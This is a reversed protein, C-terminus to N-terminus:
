RNIPEIKYEIDYADDDCISWFTEILRKAVIESGSRDAGILIVYLSHGSKCSIDGKRLSRQVVALFDNVIEPEIKSDFRTTFNFTVLSADKDLREIIRQIFEYLKKFDSENVTFSGFGNTDVSLEEIFSLDEPHGEGTLLEIKKDILDGFMPLVFVDDVGALTLKEQKQFSSDFTAACVPVGSCKLATITETVNEGLFEDSVIVCGCGSPLETSQTVTIESKCSSRLYRGTEGGTIDLVIINKAM